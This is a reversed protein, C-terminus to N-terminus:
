EENEDEEDTNEDDGDNLLGEIVDIKGSDIDISIFEIICANPNFELMEVVKDFEAHAKKMTYFTKSYFVDGECFNRIKYICNDHLNMHLLSMLPMGISLLWEFHEPITMIWDRKEIELADKILCADPHRPRFSLIHNFLEIPIIEALSM